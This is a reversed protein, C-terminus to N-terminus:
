GVAMGVAAMANAAGISGHGIEEALGQALVSATAVVGVELM